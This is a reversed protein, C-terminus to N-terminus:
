DKWDLNRVIQPIKYSPEALFIFKIIPKGDDVHLISVQVNINKILILFQKVYIYRFDNIMEATVSGISTDLDPRM